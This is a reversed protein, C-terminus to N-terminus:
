ETKQSQTEKRWEEVLALHAAVEEPAPMSAGKALNQAATLWRVNEPANPNGQGFKALPILHDVHWEGTGVTVGMRVAAWLLFKAGQRDAARSYHAVRGRSVAGKLRQRMMKLVLREPQTKIKEYAERGYQRCKAPNNKRWRRTNEAAKARAEPTMSKAVTAKVKEPNAKRWGKIRAWGNERDRANTARTHEKAKELM